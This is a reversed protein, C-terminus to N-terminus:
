WLNHQFANTIQWCFSLYWNCLIVSPHSLYCNVTIFNFRLKEIQKTDNVSVLLNNLNWLWLKFIITATEKISLIMQILHFLIIGRISQAILFQQSYIVKVIILWWFSNKTYSSCNSPYFISNSSSYLCEGKFLYFKFSILIINILNKYFGKYHAFNWLIFNPNIYKPITFTKELFLTTKMFVMLRRSPLCFDM